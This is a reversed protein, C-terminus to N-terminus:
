FTEEKTEREKRVIEQHSTFEKYKYPLGFMPFRTVLVQTRNDNYVIHTTHIVEGTLTDLVNSLIEVSSNEENIKSHHFLSHFRGAKSSEVTINAIPAPNTVDLTFLRALGLIFLFVLVIKVITKM